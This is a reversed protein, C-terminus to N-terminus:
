VERPPTFTHQGRAEEDGLDRLSPDRENGEQEGERPRDSKGAFAMQFRFTRRWGAGNHVVIAVYFLRRTENVVCSVIRARARRRNTKESIGGNLVGVRAFAGLPTRHRLASPARRIVAEDTWRQETRM